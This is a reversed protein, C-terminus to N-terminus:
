SLFTLDTGSLRDMALLLEYLSPFPQMKSEFNGEPVELLICYNILVSFGYSFGARRDCGALQHMNVVNDAQAPTAIM